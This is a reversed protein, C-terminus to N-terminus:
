LMANRIFLFFLQDGPQFRESKTNVNGVTFKLRNQAQDSISGIDVHIKHFTQLDHIGDLPDGFRKFATVAFEM